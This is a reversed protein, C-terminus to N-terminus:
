TERDKRNINLHYWLPASCDVCDPFLQRRPFSASSPSFQDAKRHGFFQDPKRQNEPKEVAAPM